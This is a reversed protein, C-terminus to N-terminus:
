PHGCDQFILFGWQTTDATRFVHPFSGQTTDVVRFFMLREWIKLVPDFFSEPGMFGRGQFNKISQGWFLFWYRDVHDRRQMSEPAGEMMLATM